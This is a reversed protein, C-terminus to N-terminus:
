NNHKINKIKKNIIKIKQDDMNKAMKARFRVIDKGVREEEKKLRAIASTLHAYVLERKSSKLIQKTNKKVPM